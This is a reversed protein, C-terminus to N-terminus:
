SRRCRIIGDAGVEVGLFPAPDYTNVLITENAYGGSELTKVVSFHLHLGVPRDPAGSWTGQYGLLTGAEVFKEFTGRPFEPSIYVEQGDASAMHTYYTWIQNGGTIEPLENFEPHRIIVTSLWDNERTLYGDYAAFIPTINDAGDPSFIDYGTHRYMPPAGDGWGVGVFGTSPWLMPAEPCRTQGVIQWDQRLTPNAFWTGILQIRDFRPNFFTFAVFAAVIIAAALVIGIVAKWIKRSM